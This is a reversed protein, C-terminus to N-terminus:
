SVQTWFDVGLGLIRFATERGVMRRERGPRSGLYLPLLDSRTRIDCERRRRGKGPRCRRSM